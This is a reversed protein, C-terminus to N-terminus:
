LLGSSRLWHDYQKRYQKSRRDILGSKRRVLGMVPDFGATPDSSKAGFGGSQGVTNAATIDERIISIIKDLPTM